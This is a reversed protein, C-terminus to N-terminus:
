SIHLAGSSGALRRGCYQKRSGAKRPAPLVVLMRGGIDHIPLKQDGLDIFRDTGGGNPVFAQKHDGVVLMAPEVIVDNRGGSYRRVSLCFLKGEIL